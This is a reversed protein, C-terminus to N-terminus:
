YKKESEIITELTVDDNIKTFLIMMNFEKTIAKHYNMSLILQDYFEQLYECKINTPRMAGGHHGCLTCSVKLIDQDFPFAQCLACYWDLEDLKSEIGYCLQHVCV